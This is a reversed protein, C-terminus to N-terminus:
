WAEPHLRRRLAKAMADDLLGIRMPWEWLHESRLETAVTFSAVAGAQILQDALWTYRGIEDIFREIALRPVAGAAPLGAAETWASAFGAAPHLTALRAWDAPKA